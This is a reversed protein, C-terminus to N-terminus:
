RMQLRLLKSVWGFPLSLSVMNGPWPPMSLLGVSTIAKCSGLHTSVPWTSQLRIYNDEPKGALASAPMSIAVLVVVLISLLIRAKM